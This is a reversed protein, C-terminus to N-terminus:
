YGRGYRYPRTGVPKVVHVQVAASNNSYNVEEYFQEANVEVELVYDGDPLDTVDVWQGSLGWYYEDAWCVSLGQINTDPEDPFGECFFYKDTDLPFPCAVEAPLLDVVCFGQKRGGVMQSVLGPNAALLDRACTRGRDRARLEQWQQYGLPTWLRYDGYEKLHPHGHCTDFNFWEPHNLPNGIVLDGPGLNPTNSSFRLLFRDGAVVEGEQVTCTRSSLRAYEVFLDRALIAPDVVLDPCGRPDRCPVAPECTDPAPAAALAPGGAVCWALGAALVAQIAERM